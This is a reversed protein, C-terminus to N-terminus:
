TAWARLWRHWWPHARPHRRAHWMGIFPWSRHTAVGAMRACGRLTLACIPSTPGVYALSCHWACVLLVGASFVLSPGELIFAGCGRHGVLVAGGDHNLYSQRDALMALGIFGRTLSSDGGGGVVSM